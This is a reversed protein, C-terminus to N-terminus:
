RRGPYNSKGARNDMPGPHHRYPAHAVGVGGVNGFENGVVFGVVGEDVLAIGVGRGVVFYNEMGVVVLLVVFPPSDRLAKRQAVFPM